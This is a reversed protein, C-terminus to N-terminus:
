TGYSRNTSVDSNTRLTAGALLKVNIKKYRLKIANGPHYLKRKIGNISILIM